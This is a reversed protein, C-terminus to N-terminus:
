RCHLPLGHTWCLSRGDQPQLARLHFLNWLSRSPVQIERDPLAQVMAQGNLSSMHVRITPAPEFSLPPPLKTTAMFVVRAGPLAPIPPNQPPDSPLSPPRRGRCVRAFHDIKKCHHCTINYAPCRQRGGQHLVSACGPCLKGLLPRTPNPYTQIAQVHSPERPTTAM